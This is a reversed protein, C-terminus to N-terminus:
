YVFKRPQVRPHEERLQSAAGTRQGSGSGEGVEDGARPNPVINIRSKDLARRAGSAVYKRLRSLFYPVRGGFIAHDCLPTPRGTDKKACYMAKIADAHKDSISKFIVPSTFLSTGRNEAVKIPSSGHYGSGVGRISSGQRGLQSFWM